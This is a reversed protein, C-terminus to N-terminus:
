RRFQLDVISHNKGGEETTTLRPCQIESIDLFQLEEEHSSKAGDQSDPQQVEDGIRLDEIM